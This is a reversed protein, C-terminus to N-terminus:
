DLVVGAGRAVRGSVEVGLCLTLPSRSIVDAFAQFGSVSSIPVKIQTEVLGEGGM